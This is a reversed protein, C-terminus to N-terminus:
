ASPQVLVDCCAVGPIELGVLCGQCGIDDELWRILASLAAKVVHPRPRSPHIWVCHDAIDKVLHASVPGAKSHVRGPKMVGTGDHDLPTVGGSVAPGALREVALETM